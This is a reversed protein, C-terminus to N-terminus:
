NKLENSRRGKINEEVRRQVLINSSVNGLLLLNAIKLTNIVQSTTTESAHTHEGEASVVVVVLCWRQVVVAKYM